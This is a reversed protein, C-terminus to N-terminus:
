NATTQTKGLDVETMKYDDEDSNEIFSGANGLYSGSENLSRELKVLDETTLAALGNESISNRKNAKLRNILSTRKDENDKVQGALVDLYAQPLKADLGKTVANEILTAFDPTEVKPTTDEVKPEDTKAQTQANAIMKDLIGEPLSELHERDCEVFSSNVKLLQDVKAKTQESMNNRLEKFESVLIGEVPDSFTVDLTEENLQYDIQYTKRSETEADYSIYVVSNDRYDMLHLQWSKLNFKKVLAKLILEIRSNGTLQNDIDSASNIVFHYNEELESVEKAKNEIELALEEKDEGEPLKGILNQFFASFASQRPMIEGQNIRPIGCGHNNSCRGIGDPLLALHDPEIDIHEYTYAEGNYSGNAVEVLTAKYGTSVELNEGNEFIRVLQSTARKTDLYADGTLMSDKMKANAIHGVKTNTHYLALRKNNWKDASAALAEKGIFEKSGEYDLVMEKLMVVPQILYQGNKKAKRANEIVLNTTITKRIPTTTAM